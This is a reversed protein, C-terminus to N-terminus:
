AGGAAVRRRPRSHRVDVEDRREGLWRYPEVFVVLSLPLTGLALLIGAAFQQDALATIGGPRSPLAAYVPYAAEPLYALAVSLAWLAVAGSAAFALRGIPDLRRVYPRSSILQAWFLVAAGLLTVHEAGRVVAVRVGADYLAPLHWGVLVAVFVLWAGAPSTAGGLVARLGPSRGAAPSLRRLPGPLSRRLATWPAALVLLPASVMTVAVLQAMHVWFLRVAFGDVPACLAAAAVALGAGFAAHRRLRRRRQSGVLRLRRRSGRVYLLGACLGTVLVAYPEVSPM